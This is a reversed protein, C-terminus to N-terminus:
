GGTPVPTGPGGALTNRALAAILRRPDHGLAGNWDTLLREAPTRRDRGALPDLFASEGPTGQTELGRRALGVIEDFLDGAVGGGGPLRQPLPALRGMRCVADLFANRADFGWDRVLDWASKMSGPDYLLGKWLAALAVASAPDGSDAGRMEIYRKLRVEPFLTTLHLEFDDVTPTHGRFGERIFRRFTVGGGPLYEGGRIVFFLPVDLAWDLYDGFGADDRFLFPLLGCRDPDTDRWAWARASMLGNPKGETLPSHAFMATVIPSLGMAARMKAMADAGDAYDINAQICATQKMMTTGRRGRTPLYARMIDYRKKPIWPLRELAALPHMGIGLWAVGLPRSVEEVATLYDQLEAALTGIDRHVAGSLEMQCGPELTIRTGGRRAGLLHGDEESPEWGHERVLTALIASVSRPGDYPVPDGSDTLLGFREYELGVGWRGRPKSGPEFYGDLQDERTIVAHSDFMAPHGPM